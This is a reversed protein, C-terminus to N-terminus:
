TCEDRYLVLTHRPSPCVLPNAMIIDREAYARSARYFRRTRLLVIARRGLGLQGLVFLNPM